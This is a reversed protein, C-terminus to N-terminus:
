NTSVTTVIRGVWVETLLNNTNSDVIMEHDISIKNSLFSFRKFLFIQVVRVIVWKGVFSDGSYHCHDNLNRKSVICCCTFSSARYYNWPLIDLRDTGILNLNM